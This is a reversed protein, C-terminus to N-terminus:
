DTNDRYIEGIPVLHYKTKYDTEHKLYKEPAGARKAIGELNKEIDVRKAGKRCKVFTEFTLQWRMESHSLGKDEPRFGTLM